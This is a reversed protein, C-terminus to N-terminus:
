DGGRGRGARDKRGREQKRTQKTRRERGEALMRRNWEERGGDGGSRLGEGEVWSGSSLRKWRGELVEPPWRRGEPVNERQRPVATSTTPMTSSGADELVRPLLTNQRVRSGEM